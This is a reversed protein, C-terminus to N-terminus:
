KAAPLKDPLFITTGEKVGAQRAAGANVEIAYQAPADSSVSTEDRAKMQRIAVVKGTNDLYVIDLPIFTNKMWFDRVQEDSFVFIMGRDDALAHRYMLGLQRTGEDNAVECRISRSGFAIDVKSLRVGSDSASPECGALLLLALLSLLRARCGDAIM